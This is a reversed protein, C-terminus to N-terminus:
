DPLSLYIKRDDKIVSVVKVQIKDGNNLTKGSKLYTNQILGSTEDDLAVLVGFSKIGTVTAERIQGVKITDWLSKRLVQTLILKNGKLIDRVYFEIITGAPIKDLQLQYEPLMNVKHIMGTLCKNFEVFVGFDKTGTVVGEYKEGKKLKKVEDPILSQLFKKRSVVYVGKEQQLSELMVYLKQGVLDKSNEETLRNVGALTNPMFANITIRDMEIDLMFGAPIMDTVKAIIATDGNYSEKLKTAVKMKVLETISGKIQYPNDNIDTIMVDIQDGIKLNEIIKLDASKNDIFISDKYSINVIIEKKSIKEIEGTIVSGVKLIDLNPMNHIANMMELMEENFSDYNSSQNYKIIRGEEIELAEWFGPQEFGCNKTISEHM